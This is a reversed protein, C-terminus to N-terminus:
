HTRQYCVFGGQTQFLKNDTTKGSLMWVYRQGPIIELGEFAVRTEATQHTRLAIAGGAEFRSLQLRYTTAQPVPPWAIELRGAGTLSVTVDRFPAVRAPATHFFGLGPGQHPSRFQIVPNDRYRAIELRSQQSQYPFILFFALVGAVLAATPMATWLPVRRGLWARAAALLSPAGANGQRQHTAARSAETETETASADDMSPDASAGLRREMAASHCAYHLAAKLATRNETLKRQVRTREDGDLSGEVYREISQDRLMRHLEGDSPMAAEAAGTPLTAIHGQKLASLVSLRQRCDACRSLHRGAEVSTAAEPDALYASLEAIRLHPSASAIMTESITESITESM